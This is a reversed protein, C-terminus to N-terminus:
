RQKVYRWTAIESKGGLAATIALEEVDDPVTATCQLAEPGAVYDHGVWGVQLYCSETASAFGAFQFSLGLGVFHNSRRASSGRINFTIVQGAQLEAPPEQFGGGGKGDASAEANPAGGFQFTFTWHYEVPGSEGKSWRFDANVNTASLDFKDVYWNYQKDGRTETFSPTVQASGRRYVTGGAQGPAEPPLVTARVCLPETERILSLVSDSHPVLYGLCEANQSELHYMRRLASQAADVECRGPELARYAANRLAIYNKEVAQVQRAKKLYAACQAGVMPLQAELRAREKETETLDRRHRAWARFLRRMGVDVFVSGGPGVLNQGVLRYSKWADNGLLALYFTGRKVLANRMAVAADAECQQLRTSEYNAQALALKGKEAAAQQESFARPLQCSETASAARALADQSQGAHGKFQSVAENVLAKGSKWASQASSFASHAKKLDASSIAFENTSLLMTTANLAAESVKKAGTLASKANKLLPFYDFFGTALCAALHAQLGGAMSQVAKALDRTTKIAKNVAKGTAVVDGTDEYTEVLKILDELKKQVVFVCADALYDGFNKQRCQVFRPPPPASPETECDTRIPSAFGYVNAIAKRREIPWGQSPDVIQPSQPPGSAEVEVPAGQIVTAGGSSIPNEQAAAGEAWLGLALVLCILAALAGMAKCTPRREVNRAAGADSVLRVM